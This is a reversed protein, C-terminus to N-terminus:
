SWHPRDGVPLSGLLEPLDAFDGLIADADTLEGPGAYGYEAGIAVCGNKHAALLDHHRDGVVIAHSARATQLLSQVMEAKDGDKSHRFRLLDFLAEIKCTRLVAHAYPEGGNTCLALRYRRRLQALTDVVGPYLEGRTKIYHVERPAIQDRLHRSSLSPGRTDALRTALWQLLHDFPEGIFPLLEQPPPAPVNHYRFVDAIAPLFSTETKYLTGDLDFIILSPKITLVQNEHKM